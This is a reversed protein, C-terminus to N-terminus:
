KKEPPPGMPEARHFGKSGFGEPPSGMHEPGPGMPPKPGIHNPGGPKHHKKFQAMEKRKAEDIVKFKELQEKTLIAEFSKRSSEFCNNVDKKAKKLALKQKHLAIFSAHKTKLDRLRKAEVQVKRLYKGAEARTKADLAEAKAKQESSLGLTEYLLGREQAKRSEFRRRAEEMQPQRMETPKMYPAVTSNIQTQGTPITSKELTATNQALVSTSTLALCMTLTLIQKKM